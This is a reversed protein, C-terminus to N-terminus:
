VGLAFPYVRLSGHNLVWPYQCAILTQENNFGGFVFRLNCIGQIEIPKGITYVRVWLVSVKFWWVCVKSQLNRSNRNTKWNYLGEDM